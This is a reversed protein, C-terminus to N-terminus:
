DDSGDEVIEGDKLGLMVAVQHATGIRGSLRGKLVGNVVGPEFGNEKAWSRISKGKRVFDSLIEDRTKLRKQEM